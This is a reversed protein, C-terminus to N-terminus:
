DTTKTYELTIYIYDVINPLVSSGVYIQLENNICNNVGIEYNGSSISHMFFTKTNINTDQYKVTINAKLILDINMNLPLMKKTGDSTLENYETPTIKIVKRYIPKEFWTGIVREKNDYKEQEKKGTSFCKIM